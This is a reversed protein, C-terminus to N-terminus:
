NKPLVFEQPKRITDTDNGASKNFNGATKQNNNKAADSKVVALSDTLEKNKKKLLETNAKEAKLSQSLTIILDSNENGAVLDKYKLLDKNVRLLSDFSAKSIDVQEQMSKSQKENSKK